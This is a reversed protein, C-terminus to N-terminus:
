ISEGAAAVLSSAVTIIRKISRPPSKLIIPPCDSPYTRSPTPIGDSYPIDANMYWTKYHVIEATTAGSTQVLGEAANTIDGIMGIIDSIVCDEFISTGFGNTYVWDGKKNQGQIFYTRVFTAYSGDNAINLTAHGNSTIQYFNCDNIQVNESKIINMGFCHECQIKSFTCFNILTSEHSDRLFTVGGNNELTVDHPLGTINTNEMTFDGGKIHNCSYRYRVLFSSYNQYLIAGAALDAYIADFAATKISYVINRSYEIKTPGEFSMEKSPSYLFLSDQITIELPQKIVFAPASLFSSKHIYICDTTEFNVQTFSSRAFELCEDDLALIQELLLFFLAM